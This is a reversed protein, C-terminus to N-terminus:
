PQRSAPARSQHAAMASKARRNTGSVLLGMDCADHGMDDAGNGMSVVEVTAGGADARSRRTARQQSLASSSNAIMETPMVSDGIRLLGAVAKAADLVSGGGIGVVVKVESAAFRRVAEDVAEPGPEGDIRVHEHRIELAQLAAMLEQWFPSAMLSHAGTVLLVPSGYDAILSALQARRGSGFEIRPLQGVAFARM